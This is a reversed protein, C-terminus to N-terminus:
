RRSALREGPETDIVAIASSFSRVWGTVQSVDGYVGYKLKRGCGEGWSVVGILRAASPIGAVLPGGSDGQCSDLGGERQGACLMSSTIAGSYSDPQNCIDRTVVPIDAALLDVTGQEGEARAGWGSVRAVDGIVPSSTQIPVPTGATVPRALKLIAFDFDMNTKNWQPHINIAVVSVRDGGSPYFETGSVVHVRTADKRVISSDVCHAATLVVDPAILTGGCFQSRNPEPAYGRVLAVQWPVQAIDVGVGGIIRGDVRFARVIASQQPGPLSRVLDTLQKTTTAAEIGRIVNSPIAPRQAHATPSVAVLAALTAPFIVRRMNAGRLLKAGLSSPIVLNLDSLFM